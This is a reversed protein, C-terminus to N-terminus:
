PGVVTVQDPALRLEVSGIEVGARLLVLRRARESVSVVHSRGDLLRVASLRTRRGARFTVLWEVEDDASRAQILEAADTGERPDEFRFRLLRTVVIRPEEGKALADVEFHAAEIREGGLRLHVGRRPIRDILFVGDEGTKVTTGYQYSNGDRLRFPIMAQTVLVEAVPSGDAAVVRGRLRTRWPDDDVRLEVGDTGAPMPGARISLLSRPHWAFLTYHRTALGGIRFEGDEGTKALDTSGAALQEAILPPAQNVSLRVGDEVTVVFGEQPAGLADVVRGQIELSPGGLVMRVADRSEGGRKVRGTFDEIVAAQHGEMAAVLPAAEPLDAVALEFRGDPGAVVHHDAGLYVDAGGAPSLDEHLVVGSIVGERTDIRGLEVPVDLVPVDPDLPLAQWFGHHGEKGASLSFGSPIAPVRDLRFRGDDGSRAEFSAKVTSDLAHPFGSFASLDIRLEIKAGEIWAGGGDTVRGTVTVPRCALIIVDQDAAARVGAEVLAVYRPDRTTVVDSAAPVTVDFSGDGRTQALAESRSRVGVGVGAIGNGSRDVVKGSVTVDDAGPSATPEIEVPTHDTTSTSTPAADIPADERLMEQPAVPEPETAAARAVPGTPAVQPPARDMWLLTATAVLTLAGLGWLARVVYSM